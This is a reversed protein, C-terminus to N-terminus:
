PENKPDFELLYKVTFKEDIVAGNDLPQEHGILPYVESVCRAVM